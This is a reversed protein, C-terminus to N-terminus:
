LFYVIPLCRLGDGFYKDIIKICHYIEISRLKIELTNKVENLLDFLNHRVCWNNRCTLTTCCLCKLKLIKAANRNIQLLSNYSHGNVRIKPAKFPYPINNISINIPIIYNDILAIFTVDTNSYMSLIFSSRNITELWKKRIGTLEAIDTSYALIENHFRRNFSNM